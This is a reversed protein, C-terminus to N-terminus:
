SQSSESIKKAFSAIFSKQNKKHRKQKEGTERSPALGCCNTSSDPSFFSSSSSLFFFLFLGSDPRADRPPSQSYKVWKASLRQSATTSYRRIHQLYKSRRKGFNRKELSSFKKRPSKIADKQKARYCIRDDQLSPPADWRSAGDM